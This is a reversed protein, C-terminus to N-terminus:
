EPVHHEILVEEIFALRKQQSFYSKREKVFGLHNVFWYDRQLEVPGTKGFVKVRHAKRSQGMVMLEELGFYQFQRYFMPAGGPDNPNPLSKSWVTGPVQNAPVLLVAEMLIRDKGAKQWGRTSVGEKDIVSFELEEVRDAKMIEFCHAEEDETAQLPKLGLYRREKQYSTTAGESGVDIIESPIQATPDLAVEVQYVWREGERPSLLVSEVEATEGSAPEKRCSILLVTALLLSIQTATKM